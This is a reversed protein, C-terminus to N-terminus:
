GLGIADLFGTLVGGPLRVDLVVGFLVYTTVAFGLPFAILTRLRRTRMTSLCATVYLTTAILYGLHNLILGYVATWMVITFAQRASAPYRPDDGGSVDETEDAARRGRLVLNAVLVSGMVTCLTGIAYPFGRPGVPDYAFKPAPAITLRAAVIVAIGIIVVLVALILDIRHYVKATAARAGADEIGPQGSEDRASLGKLNDTSM